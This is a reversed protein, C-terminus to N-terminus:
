ALGARVRRGIASAAGIGLLAVLVGAASFLPWYGAWHTVAGGAVPGIGQGLFFSAAFLALASGRATPALETARTQLTNHVMYFSFGMAFFLGVVALWPVPSSVAIYAIGAVTGGVRMMGWQGLAGLLPRVVTGYVVGGAAFAAIALGAAFTGDVGRQSLMPALFPFLGFYLAGEGATAAFVLLAIPNDLVARYGALAHTLTLRRRAEGRTDLFFSAFAALLAFVAGLTFVARWGVLVALMGSTAAGFMQGSITAILFRGIAPQREEFDVRDGILAMAVPVVGGAFAGSLVRAFLLTGYGPAVASFGLGLALIMLSFRILRGKGIADGAPGLVIQMAAYPISFATAVLAAQRLSVGLDAAIAPVIPDVARTSVSSAFGALCLM